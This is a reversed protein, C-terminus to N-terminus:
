EGNAVGGARRVARLVRHHSGCRCLHASLAGRIAAESPAPEAKLLATAAVVLGPTCYGCQAAAEAIFAEIVRVGVSDEGLAEVTVIDRGQFASAPTVCSLRAEGDVLVACSGCQELGCGYKTGTLGLENRLVFVLPTEPDGALSRREGNIRLELGEEGM